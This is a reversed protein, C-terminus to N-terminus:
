KCMYEYVLVRNFSSSKGSVMLKNSLVASCRVQMSVVRVFPLVIMEVVKLVAQLSLMTAIM